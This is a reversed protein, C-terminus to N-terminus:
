PCPGRPRGATRSSGSVRGRASGSAPSGGPAGRKSAPRTPTFSDRRLPRIRTRRRSESVGRRPVAPDAPGLRSRPARTPRESCDARAASGRCAWRSSGVSSRLGVFRRRGTGDTSRGFRDASPTRATRRQSSRPRRPSAVASGPARVEEALRARVHAHARIRTPACALTMGRASTSAVGTLRAERASVRGSSTWTRGNASSPFGSSTAPTRARRIGAGRDRAPEANRATHRGRRYCAHSCGRHTPQRPIAPAARARCWPRRAHHLDGQDSARSTCRPM